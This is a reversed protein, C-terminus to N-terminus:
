KHPSLLLVFIGVSVKVGKGPDRPSRICFYIYEQMGWTQFLKNLWNQQIQDLPNASFIAFHAFTCVSPCISPSFPAIVFEQHMEFTKPIILRHSYSLVWVNMKM